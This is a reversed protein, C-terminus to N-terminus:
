AERSRALKVLVLVLIAIALYGIGFPRTSGDYLYGILLSVIAGGTSAVFGQLSAATGAIAGLPQMALAGFNAGACSICGMSLAQLAVFGWLTEVGAVLVVLHIISLAFLCSMAGVAVSRAGFQNVIRSNLLAFASMALACVAFYVVFESRVGFAEHFVQQSLSIFTIIAGYTLMNALTFLMSTRNGIVERYASIIASPSIARRNYPDLTEPVRVACWMAVLAAFATLALFLNRWSGTLLLLQGIGPALVPAAFFLAQALSLVRSMDSGSFRDRVMAVAVIRTSASLFGQVLRAALLVPLSNARAAVVSAGAFGCLTVLLVLRRGLRDALPGYVLQGFGFGIAYTTVLSQLSSPDAIHLSRAIVPFAPLMLDIGLANVAMVAAVFAVFEPVGPLRVDTSRFKHMM